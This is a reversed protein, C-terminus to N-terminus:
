TRGKAKLTQFIDSATAVFKNWRAMRAPGIEALRRTTDLIEALDVTSAALLRVPDATPAPLAQRQARAARLQHLAYSASCGVERAVVAPGADPHELIYAEIKQRVGGLRARRRRKRKTM